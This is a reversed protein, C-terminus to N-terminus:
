FVREFGNFMGLIIINSPQAGQMCLYVSISGNLCVCVFVWLCVCVCVAVCVCESMCDFVDVSLSM